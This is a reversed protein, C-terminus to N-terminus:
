SFHDLVRLCPWLRPVPSNLGGSGQRLPGDSFPKMRWLLLQGIKRKPPLPSTSSGLAFTQVWACQTLLVKNVLSREVVEGGSFSVQSPNVIEILAEVRPLWIDVSLHIHQLDNKDRLLLLRWSHCTKQGQSM